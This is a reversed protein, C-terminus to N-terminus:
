IQNHFNLPIIPVNDPNDIHKEIWKKIGNPFEQDGHKDIFNFVYTRINGDHHLIANFMLAGYEDRHATVICFTSKVDLKGMVKAHEAFSKPLRVAISEKKESTPLRKRGAGERRGGWKGKTKHTESM